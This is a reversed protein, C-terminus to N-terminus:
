LNVAPAAYFDGLSHTYTTKGVPQTRHFVTVNKAGIPVLILSHKERMAPFTEDFTVKFYFLYPAVFDAYQSATTGAKTDVSFGASHNALARQLEVANLPKGALKPVADFQPDIMVWKKLSFLYAEVVAHTAGTDRTEVDQMMLNLVRAPIGVANLAASLVISYEDSRFDRGLRAEDLISIPDQREAASQGDQEWRSHAWASLARLKEYDTKKGAVLRELEFEDRLKTLYPDYPSSTQFQLSGSAAQHSFQLPRLRSVSQQDVALCFVSCLVLTAFATATALRM